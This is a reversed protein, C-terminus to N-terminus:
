NRKTNQNTKTKAECRQLWDRVLVICMPTTHPSTAKRDRQARGRPPSAAIRSSQPEHRFRHRQSACSKAACTQREVPQARQDLGRRRRGKVWSSCRWTFARARARARPRPQALPLLLQRGARGARQRALCAHCIARRQSSRAQMPPLHTSLTPSARRRQITSSLQAVWPAVRGGEGRWEMERANKIFCVVFHRHEFSFSLFQVRFDRDIVFRLTLERYNANSALHDKLPTLTTDIISLKNGVDLSCSVLESLQLRIRQQEDIAADSWEVSCLCFKFDFM